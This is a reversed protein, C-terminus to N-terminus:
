GLKLLSFEEHDKRYEFVTLGSKSYYIIFCLTNKSKSLQRLVTKARKDSYYKDCVMIYAQHHSEKMCVKLNIYRNTGYLEKRIDPYIFCEDLCCKKFMESLLYIVVSKHPKEYENLYEIVPISAKSATIEAFVKLKMFERDDM